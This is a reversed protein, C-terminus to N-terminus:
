LAMFIQHSPSLRDGGPGPEVVVKVGPEMGEGVRAAAIRDAPDQSATAAIGKGGMYVIPPAFRARTIASCRIALRSLSAWNRTPTAFTLILDRLTIDTLWLLETEASSDRCSPLQSTGPHCAATRVNLNGGSRCAYYGWGLMRRAVLVPCRGPEPVGTVVIRYESWKGAALLYEM